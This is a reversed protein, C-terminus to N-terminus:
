ALYSAFLATQKFRHIYFASEERDETIHRRIIQYIVPAGGGYEPVFLLSYL